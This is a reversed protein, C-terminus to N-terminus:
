LIAIVWQLQFLHRVGDLAYASNKGGQIYIHLTQSRSTITFNQKEISCFRKSFHSFDDLFHVLVHLIQLLESLV